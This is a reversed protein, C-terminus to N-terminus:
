AEPPAVSSSTRNICSTTRPLHWTFAAPPIRSSGSNSSYRRAPARRNPEVRVSWKTRAKWANGVASFSTKASNTGLRAALMHDGVAALQSRVIVDGRVLEVHPLTTPLANRPDHEPDQEAHSREEGGIHCNLVGIGAQGRQQENQQDRGRLQKHAEDIKGTAHPADVALLAVELERKLGDAGIAANFPFVSVPLKLYGPTM